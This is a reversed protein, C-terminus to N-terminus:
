KSEKLLKMIEKFKPHHTSKLLETIVMETSTLVAGESQCRRIGITANEATRSSVADAVLHVSYNEGLLDRVTQFVCVHAEIGLVIVHDRNHPKFIQWFEPQGCCSFTQKVIPAQGKLLESVEPITSGIKEPAQETLLIPIDLLQGVKILTKLNSLYQSSNMLQALKGQVDIVLLLCNQVSIM